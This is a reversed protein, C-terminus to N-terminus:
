KNLKYVYILIVNRIRQGSAKRAIFGETVGIIEAM